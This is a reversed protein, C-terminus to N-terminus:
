MEGTALETFNVAVNLKANWLSFYSSNLELRFVEVPIEKCGHKGTDQMWILSFALEIM